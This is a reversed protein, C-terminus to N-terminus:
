QRQAFDTDVEEQRNFRAEPDLTMFGKQTIQVKFCSTTNVSKGWYKFLHGYGVCTHTMMNLTMM